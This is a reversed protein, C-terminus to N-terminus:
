TRIRNRAHHVICSANGNGPVRELSRDAQGRLVVRGDARFVLSALGRTLGKTPPAVNVGVGVCVCVCVCVGVCTGVGVGVGVACSPCKIGSVGNDTRFDRELNAKNATGIKYALRAHYRAM